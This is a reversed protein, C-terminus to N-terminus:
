AELREQASRILFGLGNKLVQDYGAVVHGGPGRQYMKINLGKKFQDLLYVDKFNRNGSVLEIEEELSSPCSYKCNCYQAHGALIEDERMIIEKQQLFESLSKAMRIMKPQGNTQSLVKEYIDKRQAFMGDSYNDKERNKLIEILSDPKAIKSM